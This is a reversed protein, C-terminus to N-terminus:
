NIPVIKVNGGTIGTERTVLELIVGAQERSLTESSVLVNVSDAHVTVVPTEFGRASLVEAITAELEMFRMLEMRRRQAEGRIEQSSAEDAAIGALQRLEEQRLQDRDAAFVAIAGPQVDAPGSVVQPKELARLGGALLVGLFLVGSVLLSLRAYLIRKEENM